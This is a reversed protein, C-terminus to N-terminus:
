KCSVRFEGYFKMYNYKVPLELMFQLELQLFSVYNIAFKPYRVM